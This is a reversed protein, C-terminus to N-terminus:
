PDADAPSAWRLLLHMRHGQKDRANHGCGRGGPQHVPHDCTVSPDGASPPRDGASRRAKVRGDGTLVATDGFVRVRTNDYDLQTYRLHGDRFLALTSRKDDVTGDGWFVTVDDTVVARTGERGLSRAPRACCCGIVASIPRITASTM